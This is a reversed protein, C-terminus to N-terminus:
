KPKVAPRVAPKKKVGINPELQPVAAGVGAYAGAAVVGAILVQLAEGTSVDPLYAQLAGAAALVGAFTARLAFRSEVTKFM